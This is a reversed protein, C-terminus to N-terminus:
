SFWEVKQSLSTPSGSSGGASPHERPRTTRATAHFTLPRPIEPARPHRPRSTAPPPAPRPEAPSFDPNASPDPDPFHSTDTEPPDPPGPFSFDRNPTPAPTPTDASAAVKPEPPEHRSPAATATPERGHAPASPHNSSCEELVAFLGEGVERADTLGVRRRAPYRARRTATAARVSPQTWM